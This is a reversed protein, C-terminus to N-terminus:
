EDMCTFYFIYIPVFSKKHHRVTTSEVDCAFACAEPFPIPGDCPGRGSLVYCECSVCVCM